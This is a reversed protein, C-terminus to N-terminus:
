VRGRGNQGVSAILSRLKELTVPKLLIGTFGCAEAKGRAEVDATVLYVPLGSFKTESRIARGLGYGDMEPMWLDSFVIDIEPDGGLKELAERGNEAMVFGSVGCRSLLAKMVTRNVASDDVVLVRKPVYAPREAPTQTQDEEPRASIAQATKVNRLTVTFTSGVDVESEVSLDGGMLSALRHCIPLGLGTGDRHNKDVVQVFPQLIRVINEKTIGKGTDAVSLVLVGEEQWRVRVTVTGKDTYKYANSLLNFMIQRIRQPDVSLPPVDGIETSLSLSKRSRAIECAAVVARVLKAVDPPEEIIELKGCEMKSLDLMDNVLRALVKGSSRISSIYNRREKEDSVGQDLLDSFGIIANLPTRIDHSVTSFFLSKMQASEREVDLQSEYERALLRNRHEEDRVEEVLFVHLLCCGLICGISYYPLFANYFQLAISAMMTVGFAFVMVGHRRDKGKARLLHNLTLGSGFANFAILLLHVPDRLPGPHYDGNAEVTFMCSNFGNLVLAVLFLALMGGGTWTLSTRTPGKMGLYVIVFHTWAYLTLAMMVFYFVTDAYLMGSLKNEAFVGWLVDSVFFLMLSVLFIRYERAGRRVELSRWNALQHWNVILHVLLALGAFAAYFYFYNQM